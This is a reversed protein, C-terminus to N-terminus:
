GQIKTWPNASLRSIIIVPWYAARGGAHLQIWAIQDASAFRAQYDSYYLVRRRERSIIPDNVHM